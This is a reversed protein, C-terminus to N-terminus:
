SNSIYEGNKYYNYTPRYGNDASISYIEVRSKPYKISINIADEKSLYIIMDEWEEGFVFAYIYDM